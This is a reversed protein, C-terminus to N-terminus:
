GFVVVRKGTAGWRPACVACYDDIPGDAHAHGDCPSLPEVGFDRSLLKEITANPIGCALWTRISDIMDEAKLRHMRKTM